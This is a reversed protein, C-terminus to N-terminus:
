LCLKKSAPTKRDGFVFLLLEAHCLGGGGQIELDVFHRAADALQAFDFVKGDGFHRALGVDALRFVGDALLPFAVQVEGKDIAARQREIHVHGVDNLAGARIQGGHGDRPPAHPLGDSLRVPHTILVHRGGEPVADGLRQIDVGHVARARLVAVDLQGGVLSLLAVDDDLALQLHLHALVRHYQLRAVGGIVIGGRGVAHDGDAPLVTQEVGDHQVGGALRHGLQGARRDQGISGHGILRGIFADIAAIHVDLQVVPTRRLFDGELIRFCEVEGVVNHVRNGLALGVLQGHQMERTVMLLAAEGKLVHLLLARLAGVVKLGQANLLAVAHHQRELPVPLEPRRYQAQVLQARDGNRRDILKLRVIQFVAEVRRAHLSDEARRVAVGRM